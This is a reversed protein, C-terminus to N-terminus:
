RLPESPPLEAPSGGEPQNEPRCRREADGVAGRAVAVDGWRADDRRGPGVVSGSSRRCRGAQIAPPGPLIAWDAACNGLIKGLEM